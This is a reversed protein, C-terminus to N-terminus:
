AARRKTAPSPNSGEVEQNHALRASRAARDPLSSLSSLAGSSNRDVPMVAATAGGGSVSIDDRILGGRAGSSHRKTEQSSGYKPGRPNEWSAAHSGGELLYELAELGIDRVCGREIAGLQRKSCGIAEALREQSIGRQERARLLRLAARKRALPIPTALKAKM